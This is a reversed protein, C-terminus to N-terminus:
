WRRKEIVRTTFFVFLMTVSLYYVFSPISFLGMAFDRYRQVFSISGLLAYLERSSISPVVFVELFLMGLFVAFTVVASIIQSETLSSIFIGISAYVSAYLIFGVYILLTEFLAPNGQMMLIVWHPVTLLLAIGVLSLVAFFKGLVVSSAGVPACLLLQDTKEAKEEAMSRMTLLPMLVLMLYIMWQFTYAMNSSTGYLNLYCFLASFLLVFIGLFVYGMPNNLYNDVERKYIAKM